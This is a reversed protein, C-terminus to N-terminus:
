DFYCEWINEQYGAVGANRVAEVTQRLEEDAIRGLMKMRKASIKEKSKSKEYEAESMHWYSFAGGYYQKVKWAIMLGEPDFDGGYYVKIKSEALLDLLLVASMRPQGNMCMCAHGGKWTGCLMAYVSPNEVIYIENQPCWVRKWTAIVSLPVRVMDGEKYFGEMGAHAKGDQRYARVGSLMVDNSVDDRLIGTLLYIRNKQLAPFVTLKETKLERRAINWQILLWLFQGDKTGDDFAHPNGTLEAAFVALYKTHAQLYPFANVIRAGLELLSLLGQFTQEEKAMERSRTSVYSYCMGQEGALEEIWAKAPTRDYREGMVTCAEQWRLREEEKQAARREKKGAMEEQFYLELVRKPAIEGFRSDQLVKEFRSASISITKQGHYSRGFFGELVELEEGSMNRLTVTGAFYGYSAYKGRFGKLLRDFVRHGRFYAICEQELQTQNQM